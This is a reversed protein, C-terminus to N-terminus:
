EGDKDADRTIPGALDAVPPAPPAPKVVPRRREADSTDAPPKEFHEQELLSGAIEDAVEIPTGREALQGDPMIEVASHPGTYIITQM